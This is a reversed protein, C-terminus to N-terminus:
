LDADWLFDPIVQSLPLPTDPPQSRLPHYPYTTYDHQTPGRPISIIVPIALIVLSLHDGPISPVSGSVYGPNKELTYHGPM